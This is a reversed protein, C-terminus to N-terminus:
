NCWGRIPSFAYSRAKLIECSFACSRATPVAPRASELTHLYVTTVRGMRCPRRFSASSSTRQADSEAGAGSQSAGSDPEDPEPNSSQRAPLPRSCSHCLPPVDWLPPVPLSACSSRSTRM